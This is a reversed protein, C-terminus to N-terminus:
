NLSCPRLHRRGPAPGTSPSAALRRLARWCRASRIFASRFHCTRAAAEAATRATTSQAFGIMAAAIDDYSRPYFLPEGTSGGSRWYEAVGDDPTLCFTEYFARDDLKRLTEKDLIPIKRWEDPDDLRDLDIYDLKRSFFPARRAQEVARRKRTSQLRDIEARTKPLDLLPTM